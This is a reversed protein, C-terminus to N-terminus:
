QVALKSIVTVAVTQREQGNGASTVTKNKSKIGYVVGYM